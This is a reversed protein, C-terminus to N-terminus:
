HGLFNHYKCFGIKKRQELPQTKLDKPVILKGVVVLLDFIEDYKTVYFTYNKTIFKKDKTPAVPNKGNLPRLVKCVYPPRPKLEAM